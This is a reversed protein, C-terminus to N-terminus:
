LLQSLPFGADRLSGYMHSSENFIINIMMWPYFVQILLHHLRTQFEATFFIDNAGATSNM